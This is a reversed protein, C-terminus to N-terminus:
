SDELSSDTLGIPFHEFATNETVETNLYVCTSCPDQKEISCHELSSSIFLCIWAQMYM